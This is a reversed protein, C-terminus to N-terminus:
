EEVLKMIFDHWSLHVIQFALRLFVPCQLSRYLFSHKWGMCQSDPADKWLSDAGKPKRLKDKRKKHSDDGKRDGEPDETGDWGDHKSYYGVIWMRDRRHPANVACAPVIFARVEYGEKELDVSKM